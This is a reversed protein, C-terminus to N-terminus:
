CQDDGASLGRGGAAALVGQSAPERWRALRPMVATLMARAKPEPMIGRNAMIAVCRDIMEEMTVAPDRFAGDQYCFHCYDNVRYGSASTGFDEPKGMPMSCSQCFPGLPEQLSM